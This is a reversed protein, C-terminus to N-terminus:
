QGGLIPALWALMRAIVPAQEAPVLDIYRLGAELLDVARVYRGSDTDHWKVLIPRADTDKAM